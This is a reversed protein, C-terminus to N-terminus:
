NVFKRHYFLIYADETAFSNESIFEPHKLINGDNYNYWHNTIPNKITSYYHGSDTTGHHYNVAYLSYFYNKNDKGPHIYPTMDLDIPFKINTNDKKGDKFRQIVFILYNPVTWLRGSISKTKTKCKDCTSEVTETGFTHKLSDQLASANYVPLYNFHEFQYESQCKCKLEKIINGYFLKTIVSYSKKFFREWSDTALKVLNKEDPHRKFKIKYHLDNHLLDLFNLLFEHSDQQSSVRYFPHKEVISAVLPGIKVLQNYSYMKKLLNNYQMAVNGNVSIDEKFDGSLFYDTLSLTNALCHLISGMFCQNGGNIIGSYGSNIYVEKDFKLKYYKYYDYM